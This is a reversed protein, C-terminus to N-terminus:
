RTGDRPAYEPDVQSTENPMFINPAVFEMAAGGPDQPPMATGRLSDSGQANDQSGPQPGLQWNQAPMPTAHRAMSITPAAIVLGAEGVNEGPMETARRAMNIAPVSLDDQGEAQWNQSPMPTAHRAM